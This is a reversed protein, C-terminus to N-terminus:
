VEIVEVGQAAAIARRVEYDRTPMGKADEYITEGTSVLIYSFDVTLRMQLGKRSLLPGESGKLPIVVQRHLDKIEGAKRLLNLEAWRAAERKSDFTVGDVTTRQASFKNRNPAEQMARYDAATMRDIM